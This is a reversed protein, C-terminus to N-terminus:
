NCQPGDAPRVPNSRTNSVTLQESQASVPQGSSGQAALERAKKEDEDEVSSKKEPPPSSFVQTQTPSQEEDPKVFARELDGEQGTNTPNTPSTTITSVSNSVTQVQLAQSESLSVLAVDSLAYNAGSRVSRSVSSFSGNVSSAQLFRFFQGVTLPNGNPNVSSSRGPSGLASIDVISLAGNLNATGGVSIFDFDTGAVGGNGQLEILTQSNVALNLDGTIVTTGPSNGPQFTGAGVNVNGQVRGFVRATGGLLNMNGVVVSGQTFLSSGGSQTLQGGSSFNLTGNITANGANVVNSSFSYQGQAFNISGGALNNLTNGITSGPAFNLQGQNSLLGSGAINGSLNLVQGQGLAITGNNQISGLIDNAGVGNLTLTGSNLLTGGSALKFGQGLTLASEVIMQGNVTFAAPLFGVSANAPFRITSNIVVNDVGSFIDSDFTFDGGDINLLVGKETTVKSIRNVDVVSMADSLQIGSGAVSGGGLSSVVSASFTGAQLTDFATCTVDFCDIGETFTGGLLINSDTPLGLEFIDQAVNSFQGTLPKYEFNAVFDTDVVGITFPDKVPIANGYFSRLATSRNSAVQNGTIEFTVQKGLNLQMASPPVQGSFPNNTNFGALIANGQFGTAFTVKDNFNRTGSAGTQLVLGADGLFEVRGNQLSSNVGVSMI